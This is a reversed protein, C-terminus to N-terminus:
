NLQSVPCSKSSTASAVEEKKKQALPIDAILSSRGFLGQSWLIGGPLVSASLVKTMAHSETNEMSYIPEQM